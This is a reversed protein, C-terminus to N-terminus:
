GKCFFLALNVLCVTVTGAAIIRRYPKLGKCDSHILLAVAAAMPLAMPQYHFYGELDLALLCM